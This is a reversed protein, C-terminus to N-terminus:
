VYIWLFTIMPASTANTSAFMAPIMVALAEASLTVGSAAAPLELHSFLQLAPRGAVHQLFVFYWAFYIKM